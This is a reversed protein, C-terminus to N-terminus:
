PLRFEQQLYHNVQVLNRTLWRSIHKVMDLSHPATSKGRKWQLERTGPLVPIHRWQLITGKPLVWSESGSKSRSRGNRLCSTCAPCCVAEHKLFQNPPLTWIQKNRLILTSSICQQPIPSIGCPCRAKYLASEIKIIGGIPDISQQDAPSSAQYALVASYANSTRLKLNCQLVQILQHQLVKLSFFLYSM